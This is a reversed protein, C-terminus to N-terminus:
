WKGNDNKSAQKSPIEEITDWHEEIRDNEIRFLDYYAAPKNDFLGESMVLVFNGQGLVKKISNYKVVFGEKQWKGLAEVLSKLSDAIVPNHQLYNDGFDYSKLKKLDGQVLIDTVFNKALKKNKETKHLDKVETPGDIMTRNSPNPKMPNVQLNDWHEEIKGNKFRFVDFGIKPGFFNYETHTVVYDDDRFARVTNVKGSGPPLQKVVSLLGELGTPINLNHQKYAGVYKHPETAGTEISKLFQIAKETNSTAEITTGKANANWSMSTALLAAIIIKRVNTNEM